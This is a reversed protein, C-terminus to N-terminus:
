CLKLDQRIGYKSLTGLRFLHRQLCQKLPAIYISMKISQSHIIIPLLILCFHRLTFLGDLRETTLTEDFNTFWHQGGVAPIQDFM